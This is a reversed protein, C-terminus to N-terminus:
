TALNIFVPQIVPTFLFVVNEVFVLVDSEHGRSLTSRRNTAFCGFWSKTATMLYTAVYCRRAYIANTVFTKERLITLPDTDDVSFVSM